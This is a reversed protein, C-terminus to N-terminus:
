KQTEKLEYLGTYFAKIDEHLKFPFDPWKSALEKVFVEEYSLFTDIRMLMMMKGFAEKSYLQTNKDRLSDYCNKAIFAFKLRTDENLRSPPNWVLNWEYETGHNRQYSDYAIGIRNMTSTEGTKM